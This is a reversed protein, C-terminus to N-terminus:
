FGVGPCVDTMLIEFQTALLCSFVLWHETVAAKDMLLTAFAM